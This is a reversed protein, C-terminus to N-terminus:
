GPSFLRRREAMLAAQEEFSPALGGREERTKDKLAALAVAEAQQPSSRGQDNDQTQEVPSREMM